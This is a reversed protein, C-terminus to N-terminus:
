QSVNRSKGYLEEDLDSPETAAHPLQLPFDFSKSM